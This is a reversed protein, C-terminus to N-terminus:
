ELVQTARLIVQRHEASIRVLLHSCMRAPRLTLRRKCQRITREVERPRFVNPRCVNHRCQLFPAEILRRVVMEIVKDVM